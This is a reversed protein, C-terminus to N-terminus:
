TQVEQCHHWGSLHQTNRMSGYQMCPSPKIQVKLVKKSHLTCLVASRGTCRHYANSVSYSWATTHKMLSLTQAHKTDTYSTCICRHLCGCTCTSTILLSNKYMVHHVFNFVQLPFMRDWPLILSYVSAEM